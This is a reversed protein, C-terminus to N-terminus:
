NLWKVVLIVVVWGTCHRWQWNFLCWWWLPRTSWSVLNQSGWMVSTTLRHHHNFFFNPVLLRDTQRNPFTPSPHLTAIQTLIKPPPSPSPSLSLSLNTSQCLCSVPLRVPLCLRKGWLGCLLGCSEPLCCWARDVLVPPTHVAPFM